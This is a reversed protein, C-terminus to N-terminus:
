KLIYDDLFQGTIENVEEIIKPNFRYDHESDLEHLAKPGPISDYIEEVESPTHFKDKKGSFL